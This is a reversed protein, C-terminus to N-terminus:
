VGFKQKLFQKFSIKDNFTAGYDTKLAKFTETTKSKNARFIERATGTKRQAPIKKLPQRTIVAPSEGAPKIGYMMAFRARQAPSATPHVGASHASHNVKGAKTHRQNASSSIDGM